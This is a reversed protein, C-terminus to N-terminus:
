VMVRAVDCIILYAYFGIWCSIAVIVAVGLFFKAM